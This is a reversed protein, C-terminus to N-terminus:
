QDAKLKKVLDRTKDDQISSISERINAWEDPYASKIEQITEFMGKNAQQQNNLKNWLWYIVIGSCIVLLGGIIYLIMMAGKFFVTIIVPMTAMVIAGAGCCGALIMKGHYGAAVGALILIIAGATYLLLIKSSLLRDLLSEDQQKEQQDEIIEQIQGSTYPQGTVPNHDGVTPLDPLKRSGLCGTIVVALLIALLIRM